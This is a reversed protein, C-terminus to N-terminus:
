KPEEDPIDQIVLISAVVAVIVIAIVFAYLICEIM